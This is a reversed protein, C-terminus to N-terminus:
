ESSGEDDSSDADSAVESNSDEKDDSYSGVFSFEPISSFAKRYASITVSSAGTICVEQLRSTTKSIFATLAAIPDSGLFSRPMQLSRLAPVVFVDPYRGEWDTDFDGLTLSKLCPLSIENSDADDESGLYIINLECQVLNSAQQLIPLYESRFVSNITLSTLQAWPLNVSSIAHRDLVVSRLLPVECLSLIEAPDPQDALLLYLHRLLPMPGDITPLQRPSLHLHLHEWRARHPVLAAFVEPGPEQVYDDDGQISLPCCGSRTLFDLIHCRHFPVDYFSLTIARWLMPTALSIERWRRCIYTLLTPSLPGISPPCLPYAPLFQVFIESIIENPLTLVPYKYSDLREQALAKESRLAALSRELVVIQTDIDAVRTRDVALASLM